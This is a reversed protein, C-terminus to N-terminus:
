SKSARGILIEKKISIAISPPLSNGKRGNSSLVTLKGKPLITEIKRTQYRTTNKQLNTQRINLNEANLILGFTTITINKNNTKKRTLTSSAVDQITKNLITNIEFVDQHGNWTRACIQELIATLSHSDCALLTNGKRSM